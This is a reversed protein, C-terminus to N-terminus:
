SRSSDPQSVNRIYHNGCSGGGTSQNWPMRAILSRMPCIGTTGAFMLGAGVFGSLWIWSPNIFHSLLVGTLVICGMTLQLQRDLPLVRREGREVPYGAKAWAATGGDVVVCDNFGSKEFMEAARNARMGSHCLIYVPSGPAGRRGSLVQGCDLTDLPFLAAGALHVADYESPTRVDILDAAIRSELANHLDHISITKM